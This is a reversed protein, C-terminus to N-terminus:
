QLAATPTLRNTVSSQALAFESLLFHVLPNLTERRLKEHIEAGAVPRARTPTGEMKTMRYNKADFDASPEIDQYIGVRLYHAFPDRNPGIEAGYLAIYRQVDFLRLPSFQQRRRNELFHRLASSQPPTGYQARYWAPDFYIIPRNGAEEGSLIYHALPNEGGDPLYAKSYWGADFYPNARRGEQWGYRCFHKLPDLGSARVDPYNILYYNLDFLGSQRILQEDATENDEEAPGTAAVVEPQPAAPTISSQTLSLRKLYDALCSAGPELQHLARYEVPDFDAAPRRGEPEGFTVYHYLPNIGSSRVDDNVSLYWATDFLANPNYGNKWGVGCYHTLPDFGRAATEPYERQYYNADFTGSTSIAAMDVAPPATRTPASTKYLEFLDFHRVAVDVHQQAFAVADFSAMPSVPEQRRRQLYDALCNAEADVGYSTRYWSPEFNASPQRLELEGYEYYHLLPNIGAQRVDDHVALYSASDFYFNPNFGNFWGSNCYHVLAEGGDAIAAPYARMYWDRDFLGSSALRVITAAIALPDQIMLGAM